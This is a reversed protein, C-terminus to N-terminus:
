QINQPQEEKIIRKAGLFRSLYYSDSIKAIVVRRDTSSAHIFNNKGLYIGVHTAYPARTAFFLLDGPKLGDALEGVEFQARATRPLLIDVSKYAERVLASCDIAKFSERGFKYRVGLYKLATTVVNKIREDGAIEEENYSDPPFKAPKISFKRSSSMILVQKPRITSNKFHNLIMIRKVTTKYKKAIGSLTEGPRVTHRIGSKSIVTIVAGTNKTTSTTNKLSNGTLEQAKKSDAVSLAIGTQPISAIMGTNLLLEAFVLQSSFLFILAIFKFM